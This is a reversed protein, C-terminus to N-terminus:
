MFGAQPKPCSTSLYSEKCWKRHNQAAHFSLGVLRLLAMLVDNEWIDVPNETYNGAYVCKVSCSSHLVLEPLEAAVPANEKRERCCLSEM